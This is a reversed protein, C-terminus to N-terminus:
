PWATVDGAPSTVENFDLVEWVRTGDQMDVIRQREHNGFVIYGPDGSGDPGQLLLIATLDLLTDLADQADTTLSRLTVQGSAPARTDSVVVVSTSGLAQFVGQRAPRSKSPLSRVTVATNLAPQHPHKVWWSISTWAETDSTWDSAADVGSYDHLARARYHMTTGNPAEYDYLTWPAGTADFQGATLQRVTGWTTGGDLSRQVEFADTTADGSNTDIVLTIRGNTNDATATLDPAAPLAVDVTFETNEWDSWHLVGNVAQGVRVYARYTDDALITDVQWSTAAGYTGEATLTPTPTTGATPTSTDPDFGGAGYQADTYVKVEYVFQAGGDSDLTATWTVTPLNTDEVTSTPADVTLTPQEVYTVDVYAEYARPASATSCLVSLTAGDLQADTIGAASFTAFTVTTPTAWNSSIGGTVDATSSGDFYLFVSIPAYSPQSVTYATRLRIAVTKIVAGAPLTLNGLGGTWKETIDFTIYSSDSNDSLAADADGGAGTVAGTNLTTSDPRLTSVTM